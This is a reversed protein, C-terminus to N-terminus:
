QSNFLADQAEKAIKKWEDYHAEDHAQLYASAVLQAQVAIQTKDGQRKAINYQEIADNVVANHIQMVRYEQEPQQGQYYKYGIFLVVAIIIIIGITNLIGSENTETQM